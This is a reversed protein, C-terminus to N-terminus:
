ENLMDIILGKQKKNIISFDDLGFDVFDIILFYDEDIDICYASYDVSREGTAFLSDAYDDFFTEDNIAKEIIKTAKSLVENM